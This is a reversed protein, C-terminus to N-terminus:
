TASLEGGLQATIAWGGGATPTLTLDFPGEAADLSAVTRTGGADTLELTGELHVRGPGLLHRPQDPGLLLAADGRLELRSSETAAFVASERAEAVGSSGLAVPTDLHYTGPVLGHIADALNLRLGEPTLDIRVPDLVLGGGSSLVFPRGADWEITVPTGEVTVGSLRAGNGFGRDATITLPTPV